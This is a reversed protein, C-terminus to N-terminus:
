QGFVTTIVRGIREGASPALDPVVMARQLWRDTGDFRPTYATRGHVAVHNDVVLLDGAELAVGIQHARM